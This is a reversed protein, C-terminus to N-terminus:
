DWLSIKFKEITTTELGHNSIAPQASTVFLCLLPLFLYSLPLFFLDFEPLASTFKLNFRPAPIQEGSWVRAVTQFWRKSIRLCGAAELVPSRFIRVFMKQVFKKFLWLPGPCGPLIGPVDWIGDRSVLSFLSKLSPVFEEVGVRERPLGGGWGATEPGLFNIKTSKKAQFVAM